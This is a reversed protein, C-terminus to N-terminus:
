AEVAKVRRRYATMYCHIGSWTVHFPSAGAEDWESDLLKHFEDDGTCGGEPEGIYVLLDGGYARLADAATSDSYPPWCLLLARDPYHAAMRDDGPLVPHFLEHKVYRNDPGPLNPDYALVDIGVQVMQWAWYGSGAGIEVVGRGDLLRALWRMDGPSPISWSFRACLNFRDLQRTEPTMVAHVFDPEIRDGRWSPAGPIHRIMEWLPNEVGDPTLQDQLSGAITVTARSSGEWPKMGRALEILREAPLPTGYDRM